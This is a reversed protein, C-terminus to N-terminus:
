LNSSADSPSTYALVLASRAEWRHEGIRLYFNFVNNRNRKNNSIGDYGSIQFTTERAEIREWAANRNRYINCNAFTIVREAMSVYEM